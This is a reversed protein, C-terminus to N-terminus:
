SAVRQRYIGGVGAVSAKMQPGSETPAAPTMSAKLSAELAAMLDVVPAEAVEVPASDTVEGTAKADVYEQLAAGVTDTLVPVDIGVSRVLARAMELEAESPQVASLPLAARVQEAFALIALRGDPLLAAYRPQGRLTVRTLGAVGEADMAGLLLNLAKGGAPSDVKKKGVVMKAPRVQHIAEIVYTGDYLREMPVFTEIPAQGDRSGAINAIEDDSLEVLEGSSASAKTVIDEPSLIDGTVKDYPKQGVEHGDATYRHRPVANAPREIGSYVSVPVMVMGLSLTLSATARSPPPGAAYIPADSSVDSM